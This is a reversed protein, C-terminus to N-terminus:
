GKSPLGSVPGSGQTVLALFKRERVWPGQRLPTVCDAPGCRESPFYFTKSLSPSRDRGFGVSVLDRSRSFRGLCSCYRRGLPTLRPGAAIPRRVGGAPSWGRGINKGQYPRRRVLSFMSLSWDEEVFNRNRQYAEEHGLWLVLVVWPGLSPLAPSFKPRLCWSSGM